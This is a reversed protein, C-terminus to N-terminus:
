TFKLKNEVKDLVDAMSKVMYLYKESFDISKFGNVEPLKRGKNDLFFSTCKMNKTDPLEKKVMLFLHLDKGKCYKFVGLDVLEEEKIKLGTEEEVERICTEVPKEEVDVLGKPIDYHKRGTVHCALFKKCDTLILGASLKKV